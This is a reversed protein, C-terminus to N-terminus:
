NSNKQRRCQLKELEKELDETTRGKYKEHLLKGGAGTLEQRLSFESKRKRELYPFAYKPDDLSQVITMRAKLCPYSKLIRKLPCFEPHVERFYKYQRETIGAYFCAEELNCDLKMAEFLKLIKDKESWWANATKRVSFTGFNQDELTYAIENLSERKAEKPKTELKPRQAKPLSSPPKPNKTKPM